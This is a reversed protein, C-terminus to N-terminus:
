YINNNNNNNNNSSNSYINSNTNDDMHWMCHDNKDLADNFKCYLISLRWLSQHRFIQPHFLWKKVKSKTHTHCVFVTSRAANPSSINSTAQFRSIYTNSCWRNSALRGEATGSSLAVWDFGVDRNLLDFRVTAVSGLLLSGAIETRNVPVKRSHRAPSQIHHHFWSICVLM